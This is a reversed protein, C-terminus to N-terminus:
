LRSLFAYEDGNWRWVVFPQDFGRQAQYVLDPYGDTINQRDIYVNFGVQSAVIQWDSAPPMVAIMTASGAVGYLATSPGLVSVLVRSGNELDVLSADLIGVRGDVEHAEELAPRFLASALTIAESSSQTPALQFRDPANDPTPAACSDQVAGLARSSGRLTFTAAYPQGGTPYSIVVRSGAKLAEIIEPTLILGEDGIPPRFDFRTVFATGDIDITVPAPAAGREAVIGTFLYLSWEGQLCVIEFGGVRPAGTPTGSISPPATARDGGFTWSQALLPGALMALWISLIIQKM